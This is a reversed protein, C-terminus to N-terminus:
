YPTKKKELFDTQSKPLPYVTELAIRIAESLTIQTGERFSMRLVVKKIWELHEKSIVISLRIPDDLKKPRAMEFGKKKRM